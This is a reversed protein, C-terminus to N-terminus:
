LETEQRAQRRLEELEFSAPMPGATAPVPQSQWRRVYVIVLWTGLALVAFPMIWAIRNFGTTTPAALVIAGYKQVFSQLVLDDNDGRMLGATLENRMTDSLPCGVHNCELLIQNCGCTCMMKHGLNNFRAADDGAGICFMVLLAVSLLTLTKRLAFRSGLKRQGGNRPIPTWRRVRSSPLFFRM